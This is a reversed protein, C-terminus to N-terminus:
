IPEDEREQSEDGGEEEGDRKKEVPQKVVNPASSIRTNRESTAHTRM